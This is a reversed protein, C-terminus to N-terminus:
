PRRGHQDAGALLGYLYEWQALTRGREHGAAILVGAAGMRRRLPPDAALRDLYRAMAAADGPAFLYGSRDHSVLETLACAGAAVVPLGSAMADMTTLSQLEAESAIAFVDAARYLGPLDADPVFGLFSIRGTLGRQRVGARLASEQPGTGGIAVHAPRTLRAAADILVDLRKEPSLRGVSLIVPQDRPLGYRRALLEPAGAPASMRAEVGNSIVRSPVRLGRERLLRLATASPATVYSCRNAFALLCAYFADDFLRPRRRLSPSVNAPLYHNTYVVPIARRRASALATAGLVLPCHIHVVDPPRRGALARLGGAPLALRMGDYLPWPVSALYRVRARGATADADRRGTRPALVAVRHGRGALGAALARTVSPVGGVMPPYQDTVILIRLMRPAQM